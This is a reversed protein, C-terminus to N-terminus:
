TSNRSSNFFSPYVKLEDDSKLSSGVKIVQWGSGAKIENKGKNVLVKFTYDQAMAQVFGILAFVFLALKKKM